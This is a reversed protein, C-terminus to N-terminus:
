LSRCVDMCPKQEIKRTTLHNIISISTLKSTLNCSIWSQTSKTLYRMSMQASSVQTPCWECCYLLKYDRILTLYLLKWHEEQGSAGGRRRADWSSTQNHEWQLRIRSLPKFGTSSPDGRGPLRPKSLQQTWMSHTLIFLASQSVGGHRPVAEGFSVLTFVIECVRFFWLVRM